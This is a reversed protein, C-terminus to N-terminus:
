EEVLALHYTIMTDDERFKRIVGKEMLSDFISVKMANSIIPERISVEIPMDRIFTTQRPIAFLVKACKGENYRKLERNKRRLSATELELSYVHEKYVEVENQWMDVQKKMRKVQRRLECLKMILKVANM